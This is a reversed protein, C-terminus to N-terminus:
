PVKPISKEEKLDCKNGILIKEVNHLGYFEIQDFWKLLNEFSRVNTIDYVIM